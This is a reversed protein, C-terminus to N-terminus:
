SSRQVIGPAEAFVLLREAQPHVDDVQFPQTQKEDPQESPRLFAQALRQPLRPQIGGLQLQGQCGTSCAERGEDHGDGRLSFQLHRAEAGVLAFHFDVKIFIALTTYYYYDKNVASLEELYQNLELEM